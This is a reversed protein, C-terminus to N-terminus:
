PKSKFAQTRTQSATFSGGHFAKDVSGARVRALTITVDCSDAVTDKEDAPKRKQLTNPPVIISTDGASPTLKVAEICEGSLGLEMRDTSPETAWGVVVPEARSYESKQLTNLTFPKPLRVHSDPAGSDLSRALKVHFETEAADKNFGASYTVLGFVSTEKMEQAASTGEWATMTDDATLQIFTLLTGEERLTANVTTSGNGTAVATMDAVMESTQFDSASKTSCAILLMGVMLLKVKTM